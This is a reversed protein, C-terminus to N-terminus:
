SIFSLEHQWSDGSPHVLLWECLLTLTTKRFIKSGFNQNWFNGPKSKINLSTTKQIASSTRTWNISRKFTQRSLALFSNMGYIPCTPTISPRAAVSLLGSIFYFTALKAPVKHLSNLLLAPACM